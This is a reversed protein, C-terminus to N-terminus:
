FNLMAKIEDISEEYRIISSRERIKDAYVERLEPHEIVKKMGKYIGIVSKEMVIGYESDGILERVGSCDTLLLPIGLVAAEQSVLSYGEFISSSVFWDAHKMYKYANKRAGIFKVNKLKLRKAAHYLRHHADGWPEEGGIIWVEFNMEEQELMHAAELLLEYGKQWNLRGVSVFRVRGPEKETEIDVVEEEAKKLVNEIDIPNYKVVLNGPDGIVDKIGQEIDQSVCVINKFKKMCALENAPNQFISRTYYYSNYDTHVWAFKVPINMKSVELLKWGEKIAIVCDFNQADIWKAIKKAYLEKNITNIRRMVANGEYEKKPWFSIYNVNEPYTDKFEDGHYQDTMITIDYQDHWYQVLDYMLKEVGGGLLLDNVILIKKKVAM